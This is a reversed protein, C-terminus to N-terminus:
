RQQALIESTRTDFTSCQSFLLHLIQISYCYVLTHQITYVLLAITSNRWIIVPPANFDMPGISRVHYTSILNSFPTTRFYLICMPVSTNKHEWYQNTQFYTKTQNNISSYTTHAMFQRCRTPKKPMNLILRFQKQQHAM